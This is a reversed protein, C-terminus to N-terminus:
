VKAQDEDLESILKVKIMEKIEDGWTLRFMMADEPNAFFVKRSSYNPPVYFFEKDKRGVNEMYEEIWPVITKNFYYIPQKIMYPTRSHYNTYQTDKYEEVTDTVLFSFRYKKHYLNERIIIKEDKMAVKHSENFPKHVEFVKKNHKTVIYDFIQSNNTYVIMYYRVRDSWSTTKPNPEYISSCSMKISDTINKFKRTLEKRLVEKANTVDSYSRNNVINISLKHDYKQWFLKGTPIIKM